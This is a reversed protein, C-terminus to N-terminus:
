TALRHVYISGGCFADMEVAFQCAKAIIQKTPPAARKAGAMLGRMYGTAFEGGSGIAVPSRSRLITCDDDVIWVYGPCALLFQVGDLSRPGPDKSEVWESALVRWINQAVAGAKTELNMGAKDCPEFLEAIERRLTPISAYYGCVGLAWEDYVLWKSTGLLYRRSGATIQEDSAIWTEGKGPAAAIVTM